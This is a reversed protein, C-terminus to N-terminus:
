ARLLRRVFYKGCHWYHNNELVYNRSIIEVIVIVVKCKELFGWVEKVMVIVIIIMGAEEWLVNENIM